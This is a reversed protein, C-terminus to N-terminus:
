SESIAKIMESGIASAEDFRSEFFSATELFWRKCLDFSGFSICQSWGRAAVVFELDDSRLTVDYVVSRIAADLRETSCFLCEAIGIWMRFIATMALDLHDFPQINLHAWCYVVALFALQSNARPAATGTPSSRGSGGITFQDLGDETLFIPVCEAKVSSFVQERAQYVRARLGDGDCALM